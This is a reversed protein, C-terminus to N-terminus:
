MNTTGSQVSVPKLAEVIDAHKCHVRIFDAGDLRVFLHDDLTSQQESLLWEDDRDDPSKYGMEDLGTIVRSGFNPSLELYDIEDFVLSVSSGKNGSDLNPEFLIQLQREKGKLVLGVFNYLNQLDYIKGAKILENSQGLSFTKEM